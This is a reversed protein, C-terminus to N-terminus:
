GCQALSRYSSIAFLRWNKAVRLQQPTGVEMWMKPVPTGVQHITRWMNEAASAIDLHDNRGILTSSEPQRRAECRREIAAIMTSCSIIHGALLILLRLSPDLEGVALFDDM